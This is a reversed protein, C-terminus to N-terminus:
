DDIKPEKGRLTAEIWPWDSPRWLHYTFPAGIKMTIPWDNGGYSFRPTDQGLRISRVPIGPWWADHWRQLAGHIKLMWERQAPSQKGRESKLEVFLVRDRVLVLDPFGEQSRRSDYTHYCLWGLHQAMEIVTRQFDSERM